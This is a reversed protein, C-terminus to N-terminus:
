RWTQAITLPIVATNTGYAAGIIGKYDSITNPMTKGFVNPYLINALLKIADSIRPGPREVANAAEGSLIYIRNNKVANIQNFGPLNKFYNLLEEAPKPLSMSSMIIVDPNAAVVQEPNVVFWGSKDSFANMGGAISIVENLYTGNGTVWMPDPYVLFVVKQKTANSLKASVENITSKIKDVVAEGEKFKSTIKAILRINNIVDNISSSELAVVTLGFGELTPIFKKQLSADIFVVDPQLSAVKEPSLTTVGGVIQIRGAKILDLLEPPYNSYQDVGVVKNSLGLAFLTETISPVGSVIRNPESKITIVRGLADEIFIPYYFEQIAKLESKLGKLENILSNLSSSLQRFDNSIANNTYAIYLTNGIGILLAIVALLVFKKMDEVQPHFM